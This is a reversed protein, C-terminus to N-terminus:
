HSPQLLNSGKNNAEIDVQNARMAQRAILMERGLHHFKKYDESWRRIVVDYSSQCEILQSNLYGSTIQVHLNGTTIIDMDYVFVM